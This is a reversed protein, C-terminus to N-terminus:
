LFSPDIGEEVLKREYKKCIKQSYSIALLSAIYAGLICAFLCVGAIQINLGMGFFYYVFLLTAGILFFLFCEIRKIKPIAHIMKFLNTREEQTLGKERWKEILASQKRCILINSFPELLFQAAAILVVVSIVFVFYRSVHINAIFITYALLVLGSLCDPLISADYIERTFTKNENKM